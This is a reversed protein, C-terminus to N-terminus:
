SSECPASGEDARPALSRDAVRAHVIELTGLQAHARLILDDLDVDTVTATGLVRRLTEWGALKGRVGMLLGEVEVLTSLPSRRLLRGNLKLLGVREAVGALVQKYRRQPVGLQKVLTQLAVRDEAIEGALAALVPGQPSTREAEALRLARRSGAVSGALHDDLYIGLLRRRDRAGTTAIM